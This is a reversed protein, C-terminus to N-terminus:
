EQTVSAPATDIVQRMARSLNWCQRFGGSGNSHMDDGIAQLTSAFTSISDRLRAVEARSAALEARLERVVELVDSPYVGVQGDHRISEYHELREILTESM